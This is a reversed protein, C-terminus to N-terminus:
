FFVTKQIIYTLHPTLYHSVVFRGHGGQSLLLSLLPSRWNQTGQVSETILLSM